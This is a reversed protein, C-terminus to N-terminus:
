LGLVVHKYESADMSGRLEDAAKWLVDEFGLPEVARATRAGGKALRGATQERKIPASPVDLAPANPRGIEGTVRRAFSSVLQEGIVDCLRSTTNRSKLFDLQAQRTSPFRYGDRGGPHWVAKVVTGLTVLEHALWKDELVLRADRM